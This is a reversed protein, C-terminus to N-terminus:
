LTRGSPDVPEDLVYLDLYRRCGSERRNPYAASPQGAQVRDATLGPLRATLLEAILDVDADDGSLRVRVPRVRPQSPSRTPLPRPTPPTM